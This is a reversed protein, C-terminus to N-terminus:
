RHIDRWRRVMADTVDEPYCVLTAGTRGYESQGMCRRGTGNLSYPCPCTQGTALYAAVSEQVIAQRVTDDSWPVWHLGIAVGALLLGLAVFALRMAKDGDRSHANVNGSRSGLMAEIGPHGGGALIL